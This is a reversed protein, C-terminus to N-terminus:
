RRPETLPSPKADNGPKEPKSPASVASPAASEATAVASAAEPEAPQEAVSRKLMNSKARDLGEVAEPDAAKM